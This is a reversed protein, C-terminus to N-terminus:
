VKSPWQDLALIAEQKVRAQITDKSRVLDNLPNGFATGAIIGHSSEELDPPVSV